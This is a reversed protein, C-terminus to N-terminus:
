SVSTLSRKRGGVKNFPAIARPWQLDGNYWNITVLKKGDFIGNQSSKPKAGKSLM